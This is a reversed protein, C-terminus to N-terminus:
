SQNNFYEIVHMSLQMWSGMVIIYAHVACSHLCIEPIDPGDVDNPPGWGNSLGAIYVREVVVCPLPVCKSVRLPM